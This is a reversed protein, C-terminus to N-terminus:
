MKNKYDEVKLPFYSKLFLTDHLADKILKCRRKSLRLSMPHIRLKNPFSQHEQLCVQRYIAGVLVCPQSCM